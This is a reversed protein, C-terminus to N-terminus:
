IEPQDQDRTLARGIHGLAILGVSPGGVSWAVWMLVLVTGSQSGFVFALAGLTIILTLAIWGVVMLVTSILHILPRV